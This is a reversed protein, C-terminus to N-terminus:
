FQVKLLFQLSRPGGQQYLSSLGGLGNNLTGTAQGMLVNTCTAGAATPGCSTSLAGFNPHNTLNFAEARFQLKLEELLPFDRQIAVNAQAEGFARLMNRPLDGIGTSSSTVSFDAPNLQKGGPIGSAYVYPNQGNWNLEGTVENGSVPDVSTPGAPTYPFASRAVALLDVTWDGLLTRELRHQYNAPVNYVAALTFNHRIDHDSNGRQINFTTGTDNSVSDIAHSWTYSALAQLGHSIHRQYKM